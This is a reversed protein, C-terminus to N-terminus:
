AEVAYNKLIYKSKNIPTTDVSSLRVMEISLGPGFACAFIKKNEENVSNKIKNLIRNLIFLITPSSMNGYNQLINMSDVVNSETLHLSEKVAQVIKVGGPHIAWYDIESASEGLFNNVVPQINDKIAKVINKSLFMRFASSSINWTMLELTNPIYSSGIADISLVVKNKIHKSEKGCVIVAAAGDAFLLNALIDEDSVSPYFHLSCLEASIILICADPNAQAIYNAHKLAKIAAYCGLFNIALKETHQLGYHEAVLFEFGPAFLGTCSVTILHTVDHSLIKTQMLLKDIAKTALPMIKKKYLAMRNESSQNYNGDAYLEHDIGKFDPICSYRNSIKTKESLLTLKRATSNIDIRSVSSLAKSYFKVYSEKEIQFEPVVTSIDLIYSM